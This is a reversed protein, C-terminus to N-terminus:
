KFCRFISKEMWETHTIHINILFILSITLFLCVYAFHLSCVELAMRINSVVSDSSNSKVIDNICIDMAERLRRQSNNDLSM